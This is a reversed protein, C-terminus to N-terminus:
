FGLTKAKLCLDLRGEVGLKEYVLTLHNRVTKESIGLKEGINKASIGKAALYAVDSERHSLSAHQSAPSPSASPPLDPQPNGQTQWLLTTLNRDIWVQGAYVTHIAKILLETSQDKAIVGAAGARLADLHTQEDAISSFALIKSKPSVHLLLPIHQLNKEEDLLLDLLILDPTHTNTLRYIDDCGNSEAVVQFEPQSEFLTRLGIRVIKHRELVLIRIKERSVDEM